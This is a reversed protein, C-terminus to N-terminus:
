LRHHRRVVEAEFRDLPRLALRVSRSASRVEALQGIGNKHASKIEIRVSDRGPRFISMESLARPEAVKGVSMVQCSDHFQIQLPEVGRENRKATARRRLEASGIGRM